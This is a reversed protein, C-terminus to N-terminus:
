DLPSVTIKPDWEFYALKREGRTIYFQVSYSEEGYDTIDCSLFYEPIQQFNCNLPDVVGGSEKPVPVYPYALRPDPTSTVQKNPNVYPNLIINYMIVSYEVDDSVTIGAWRIEDGMEARISLDPGAQTNPDQLYIPSVVMFIDEHPLQFPNSSSNNSPINDKWKNWIHEADYVIQMFINSM